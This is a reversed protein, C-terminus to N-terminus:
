IAGDHTPKLKVFSSFQFSKYCVKRLKNRLSILYSILELSCLQGKFSESIKLDNQDHKKTRSCRKCKFIQRHVNRIFTFRSFGKVRLVKKLTDSQIKTIVSVISLCCSHYGNDIGRNRALLMSNFCSVYCQCLAMIKSELQKIKKTKQEDISGDRICTISFM